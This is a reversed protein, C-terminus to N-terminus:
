APSGKEAAPASAAARKEYNARASSDLADMAAREGGSIRNTWDALRQPLLGGIALASKMMAPVYVNPVPRRVVDVIANAVKDPTVPAVGKPDTFGASLETRVLGPHVATIHIPTGDAHFEYYLANCFGSVAHKSATYTAAGAVPARGAGSSVNVIHGGIQGRAKFRQVMERTGHIVAFLNIEFITRTMAPDEDEIRSLPMVGANNVLVDLPGHEAEVSDLLATFAAHDTVDLPLGALLGLESATLDALAADLDAIVVRAGAARLATATAAGIGRAGGTILVLRGDLPVHTPAM